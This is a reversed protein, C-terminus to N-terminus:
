TGSYYSTIVQVRYSSAIVMDLHYHMIRSLQLEQPILM